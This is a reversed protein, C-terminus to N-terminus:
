FQILNSLILTQSGNFISVNTKWPNMKCTCFAAFLLVHNNVHDLYELYNVNIMAMVDRAQLM